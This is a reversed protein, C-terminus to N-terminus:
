QWPVFDHPVKYPEDFCYTTKVNEYFKRLRCKVPEEDEPRLNLICVYKARLQEIHNLQVHGALAYFVEGDTKGNCLLIVSKVLLDCNGDGLWSMTKLWSGVNLPVKLRRGRPGLCDGSCKWQKLRNTLATVDLDYSHQVLSLRRDVDSEFPSHLWETLADDDFNPFNRLTLYRLNRIISTSFFNDTLSHNWQLTNCRPIAELLQMTKGGDTGSLEAQDVVYAERVARLGALDEDDFM